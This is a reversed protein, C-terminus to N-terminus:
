PAIAPPAVSPRGCTAARDLMTLFMPSEDGRHSYRFALEDAYRQLYKPSVGRHVSGTAGKLYSWAGEVSNTHVVRSGEAEDHVTYAYEKVRHRVVDHRYGRGELADYVVFEDTYVRAGEEVAGEILPLITARKVDPTVWARMRTPMGDAGREVIGVVPTKPRPGSVTGRGRKRDGKRRPKRSGVYTEDVEATGTFPLTGDGEAMAARILHCMRWATKYTVGTEREIQRAAVGTKTHSLTWIVYFWIPLPTRTRHFITGATPYTQAGCEQCDYCRRKKSAHHRTVCECRTCRIGEPWRVAVIHALCDEETRFRRLFDSLTFREM